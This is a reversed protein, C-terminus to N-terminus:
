HEMKAQLYSYVEKPRIKTQKLRRRKGILFGSPIDEVFYKAAIKSTSYGVPWQWKDYYYNIRVRRPEDGHNLTIVQIKGEFERHIKGLYMTDEPSITELNWFFLFVESRKYKKIQNKNNLINTYEFNPVKKGISLSNKAIGGKTHQIEIYAGTNEISVLHYVKGNWEFTNKGITPTFDRLDGYLMESNYTGVYLKDDCPDAYLGNINMDKLGIFFSDTETNFAGMRANYRQERFCYNVDTFIKTGSHKKYHETLLQKYSLNQGVEFRTLKISYTANPVLTNKLTLIKSNEEYHLTDPPGDNTFDLDNNKDIFFLTPTKFWRKYNAVIAIVYLGQGSSDAGSFHVYTYGTDKVASLDPLKQIIHPTEDKTKVGFKSYPELTNNIYQYIPLISQSKKFQDDEVWNQLPIKIKQQAFCFIGSVLLPIMFFLKKQLCSM